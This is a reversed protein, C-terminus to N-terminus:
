LLRFIGLFPAVAAEWFKNLYALKPATFLGQFSLDFIQM